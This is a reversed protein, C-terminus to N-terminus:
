IVLLNLDVVKNVICSSVLDKELFGILRRALVAGYSSGAAAKFDAFRDFIFDTPTALNLASVIVVGIAMAKIGILYLGRLFVEAANLTPHEEKVM